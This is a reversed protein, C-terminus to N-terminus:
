LWPHVMAFASLAVCKVAEPQIRRSELGNSEQVPQSLDMDAKTAWPAGQDSAVQWPFLRPERTVCLKGSGESPM